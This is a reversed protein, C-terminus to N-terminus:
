YISVLTISPGFQYGGHLDFRPLIFSVKGLCMVATQSGIFGMWSVIGFHTICSKRRLNYENYIHGRYLEKLNARCSSCKFTM